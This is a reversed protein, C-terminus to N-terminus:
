EEAGVRRDSPPREAPTRAPGSRQQPKTPIGPKEMCLLRARKDWTPVAAFGRSLYLRIADDRWDWVTLRIPLSGPRCAADLLAAGVHQGRARPDVWLRKVEIADAVQQAVIVGVASGALEAVHVVADRYAHAPDEVEDAYRLPLGSSALPTGLRHAKEQETQLLYEKVLRGVAVSDSGALDAARVRIPSPAAEM